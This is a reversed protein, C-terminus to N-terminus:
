DPTFDARPRILEKTEFQEIAHACWGALRGVAFIVFGADRPLDTTLTFAALAADINPRMDWRDAIAAVHQLAPADPGLADLLCSARVDGAPYLPHGFGHMYPAARAQRLFTADGAIEAEITKCANGAVGGHRPGSLTTLGALLAASLSAGTSACVRVAFTSPNLEHDSILVLSRRLTDTAQADLGWARGIRLHIPANTSLGFMANVTDSLLAGGAAALADRDQDIGPPDHAARRALFALANQM